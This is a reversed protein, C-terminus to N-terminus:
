SQASKRNDKSKRSVGSCTRLRAPERDDCIVFSSFLHEADPERVVSFVQSMQLSKSLM